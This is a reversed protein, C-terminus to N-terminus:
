TFEAYHIGLEDFVAVKECGDPTKSRRRKKKLGGDGWGSCYLVSYADPM